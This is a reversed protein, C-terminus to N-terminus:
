IVEFRKLAELCAALTAEFTGSTDIIAHRPLRKAVDLFRARYHTLDEVTHYKEDLNKGASKLRARSVEVPCDLILYIAHPRPEMELHDTMLTAEGRDQADIGLRKLAAILTTKGTGDNGDIVIRGRSM